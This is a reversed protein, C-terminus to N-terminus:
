GFYIDFGVIEFVETDEHCFKCETLRKWCRKHYPIHCHICTVTNRDLPEGCLMCVHM